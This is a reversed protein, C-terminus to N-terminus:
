IKKRGILANMSFFGILFTITCNILPLFIEPPVRANEWLFYSCILISCAILIIAFGSLGYKVGNDKARTMNVKFAIGVILGVILGVIAGSVQLIWISHYDQLWNSLSWFLGFAFVITIMLALSSPKARVDQTSEANIGASLGKTTSNNNPEKPFWARVSNLFKKNVKLIEVRTYTQM